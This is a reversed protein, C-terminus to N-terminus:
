CQTTTGRMNPLAQCLRQILRRITKTLVSDTLMAVAGVKLISMKASRSIMVTTEVELKFTPALTLRRLSEQASGKWFIALVKSLKTEPGLTFIAATKRAMQVERAELTL